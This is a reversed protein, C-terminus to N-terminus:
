FVLSANQAALLEQESYYIPRDVWYKEAAQLAFRENEFGVDVLDLRKAQQRRIPNASLIIRVVTELLADDRPWLYERTINAVGEPLNGSHRFYFKEVGDRASLDEIYRYKPFVIGGIGPKRDTLDERIEDPFIIVADQRSVRTSDYFGTPLFLLNPNRLGDIYHAGIYTDLCRRCEARELSETEYRYIVDRADVISPLTYYNYKRVPSSAMDNLPFLFRYIVGIGDTKITRFDRSEHIAFFLAVELSKTADLGESSLGYQQAITTGLTYDFLDVLRDMRYQRRHFNNLLISWHEWNENFLSLEESSLCQHLAEIWPVYAEGEQTLPIDIGDIIKKFLEFSAQIKEPSGGNRILHRVPNRYQLFCNNYEGIFRRGCRRLSFKAYIPDSSDMDTCGNEDTLIARFASPLLPGPYEITQGRYVYRGGRDMEALYRCLTAADKAALEPSRFPNLEVCPEYVDIAPKFFSEENLQNDVSRALLGRLIYPFDDGHRLINGAFEAEDLYVASVRPHDGHLSMARSLMRGIFRQNNPYAAVCAAALGRLELFADGTGDRTSLYPSNLKTLIADGEVPGEAVWMYEESVLRLCRLAADVNQQDSQTDANLQRNSSWSAAYYDLALRFGFEAALLEKRRMYIRSLEHVARMFAPTAAMRQIRNMEERSLKHVACTDPASVRQVWNMEEIFCNEADALQNLDYHIRGKLHLADIASPVDGADLAYCKIHDAVRLAEILDHNAYIEYAHNLQDSFQVLRRYPNYDLVAGASQAYAHPVISEFGREALNSALQRAFAYADKPRLEGIYGEFRSVLSAYLISTASSSRSEGSVNTISTKTSPLVNHQIDTVTKQPKAIPEPVNTIKQSGRWRFIKRLISQRSGQQKEAFYLYRNYHANLEPSTEMPPKSTRVIEIAELMEKNDILEVLNLKLAADAYHVWDYEMRSPRYVVDKKGQAIMDNLFTLKGWAMMRPSVIRYYNGLLRGAEKRDGKDILDIIEGISQVVEPSPPPITESPESFM